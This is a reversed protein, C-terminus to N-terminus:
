KTKKHTKYYRRLFSMFNCRLYVFIFIYLLLLLICSNISFRSIGFLSRSDMESCLNLGRDCLRVKSLNYSCKMYTRIANSSQRYKNTSHQNITRFHKLIVNYLNHYPRHRKQIFLFLRTSYM